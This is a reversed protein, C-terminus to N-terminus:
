QKRKCYTMQWTNVVHQNMTVKIKSCNYLGLSINTYEGREILEVFTNVALSWLFMNEPDSFEKAVDPCFPSIGTCHDMEERIIKLTEFTAEPHGPGESNRFEPDASELAAGSNNFLIDMVFDVNNPTRWQQQEAETAPPPIAKGPKLGFLTAVHKRITDNEIRSLAEWHSQELILTQLKLLNNNQLQLETLHKLLGTAGNTKSSAAISPESAAGPILNLSKASLPSQVLQGLGGAPRFPQELAPEVPDM